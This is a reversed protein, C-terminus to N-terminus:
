DELTDGGFVLMSGSFTDRFFLLNRNLFGDNEPEMNTNTKPPTNPVTVPPYIWTM